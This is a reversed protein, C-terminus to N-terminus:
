PYIVEKGILRQILPENGVVHPFVNEITCRSYRTRLQGNTEIIHGDNNERVCVDLLEFQLFAHYKSYREWQDLVVEIGKFEGFCLEPDMTARMFIEQSASSTEVDALMMNRRAPPLQVGYRFLTFYERVLKVLSGCVTNRPSVALENSISRLAVLRAITERLADVDKHLLASHAARKARYYKGRESNTMSPLIPKRGRKKPVKTVVTSPPTVSKCATPIKTADGESEDLAPEDDDGDSPNLLESMRM